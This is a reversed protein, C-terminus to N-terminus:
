GGLKRGCMPCYNIQMCGSVDDEIVYTLGYTGVEPEDKEILFDQETGYQNPITKGQQCYLCEKDNDENLTDVWNIKKNNNITIGVSTNALAKCDAIFREIHEKTVTSIPTSLHTTGVLGNDFLKITLYADAIGFVLVDNIYISGDKYLSAPIGADQMMRVIEERTIGNPAALNWKNM